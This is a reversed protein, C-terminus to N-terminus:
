NKSERALLKCKTQEKRKGHSCFDNEQVYVPISNEEWRLCRMCRSGCNIGVDGTVGFPLKKEEETYPRTTGDDLKIHKPIFWKCDKCRVVKVVDAAPIIDVFDLVHDKAMLYGEIVPSDASGSEAAIKTLHSEIVRKLAGREIYESM